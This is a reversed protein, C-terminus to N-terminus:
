KIECSGHGAFEFFNTMSLIKHKLSIASHHYEYNEIVNDVIKNINVFHDYNLVECIIQHELDTNGTFQQM